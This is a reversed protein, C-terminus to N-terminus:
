DFRGLLRGQRESTDCALGSAEYDRYPIVGAPGQGDELLVGCVTM